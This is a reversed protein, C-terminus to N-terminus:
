LYSACWNKLLSAERWWESIKPSNRHTKIYSVEFVSLIADEFHWCRNQGFLRSTRWMTIESVLRLLPWPRSARHHNELDNRCPQSVPTGPLSAWQRKRSDFFFTQLLFSFPLFSPAPGQGSGSPLLSTLAHSVAAGVGRIVSSCTSLCSSGVSQFAPCM